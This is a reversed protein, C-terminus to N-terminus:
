EVRAGSAEVLLALKAVEARIFNDYDALMLPAAEAGLEQFRRRTAPEELATRIANALTSLIPAPTGTRASIGFWSGIEFDSIGAEQMTPVEPLLPIRGASTVALARLTGAKVHEASVPANDIAFLTEGNLVAAMSPATGRYPVHTPETGTRQAFMVGSLHSSTGVGASSFSAEAPRAKMFAVLEPVDRIRRNSNVILVNPLTSMRCVGALDALPDFSLRRYLSPGVGNTAANSVFYSYGDPPARVVNEAGVMGGAGTRNDIWVPQGLLERLQTEILRVFIDSASGPSGASVFRIPKIPWPTQGRASGGVLALGATVGGMLNRRTLM